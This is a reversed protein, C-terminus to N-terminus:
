LIETHHLSHYHLVTTLLISISSVILALHDYIKTLNDRWTHPSFLQKITMKHLIQILPHMGQVWRDDLLSWSGKLCSEKEDLQSLYSHLFCILLICSVYPHFAAFRNRTAVSDELKLCVKWRGMSTLTARRQVTNQFLEM